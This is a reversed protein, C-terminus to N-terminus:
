PWEPAEKKGAALLKRGSVPSSARSDSPVGAIIAGVRLVASLVVTLSFM